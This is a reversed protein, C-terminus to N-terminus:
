YIACFYTIGKTKRFDIPIFKWSKLLIDCGLFGGIPPNANPIM